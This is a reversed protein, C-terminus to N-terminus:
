AVPGRRGSARHGPSASEAEAARRAETSALHALRQPEPLRRGRTWALVFREATDLSVGHGVSVFVPKVGERTRVVRGVERTDLWLPAVAGRQLAPEVHTGCLRKKACGVTSIGLALGLHSAIGLGRPHARGHGDVVAVDPRRELREFTALLAPSERFSLFGPVYHFSPRTQVVAKELPRMTEAECVVVVGFIAELARSVAVDFGAVYRIPATLDREVVNLAMREQLARAERLTLDWRHVYPRLPPAERAM